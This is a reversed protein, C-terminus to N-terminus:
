LAGGDLGDGAFVSEHLAEELHTQELAFLDLHKAKGGQAIRHFDAQAIIAQAQPAGFSGADGDPGQRSQLGHAAWGQQRQPSPYLVMCRTRVEVTARTPLGFVPLVVSKLARAPM